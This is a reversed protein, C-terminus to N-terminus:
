LIGMSYLMSLEDEAFTAPLLIFSDDENMWWKWEVMLTPYCNSDEVIYLGKVERGFQKGVYQKLEESLIVGYDEQLALINTSVKTEYDFNTIKM